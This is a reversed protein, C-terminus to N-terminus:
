EEYEIECTIIYEALGDTEYIYGMEPFSQTPFVSTIEAGEWDPYNKAENQATVWDYLETALALSEENTGDYGDSWPLVIRLMFLFRRKATGDIYKTGYVDVPNTVLAANGDQAVLANLKLYDNFGDWGKAWEVTKKAKDKLSLM